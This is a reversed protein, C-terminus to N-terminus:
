RRRKVLGLQIWVGASQRLLDSDDGPFGTFRTHNQFQTNVYDWLQIVPLDRNATRALRRILPPQEKATATNLEATLEGPNVEGLGPVETREPSGLWNGATGPPHHTVTGGVNVWGNASGYLRQFITYPAPGLAILWFGTDYKGEAMETQYLPFDAATVIEAGVGNKILQGKINEQAALWDSFGSPAHMSVTWPTGDALTWRGQRKTLGAARFEAEAKAPDPDYRELADLEAGLWRRAPAQHIGTTTLAPLGGEPAAVQQVEARDILYALGRRVHPDDYPKRSQNFALGVAVPSYGRVIVNGETAKIRRMTDAPVAVFPASDLRGAILYNWVQENGTYNLMRVLDPAVEAANHFGPNRKLLAAGANVRDLVYPGASVDKGPNFAIVKEGLESIEARAREAAAGSGRATEIRTWIDAPLVNRWVHAPVVNSDLVGRAFAASPNRMDQTVRVTREDVVTVEAAAGAAGPQLAFATSGQTYAVALSLKVDEATLPEGDSWAGPQLRLTVASGDPAIEWSRALGPYFQNPDTLHNKTWALRMANYGLFSNGKPAWPNTAPGNPDIGPRDRDITTFVSSNGATNGAPDGAAGCAPVATVGLLAAVAALRKM